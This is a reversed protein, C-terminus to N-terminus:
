GVGYLDTFPVYGCQHPSSVTAMFARPVVLADSSVEVNIARIRNVMESLRIESTAELRRQDDPTVGNVNQRLVMLNGEADAELYTHEDVPAIATTWATQFHRAVELLKDPLGAEGPVFKVISVSKMVDGIAITDGSISIDIPATSTRYAAIRRLTSSEFAYVVVTKVLGAVLRGDMLGLVRCAGKTAHETVVKLKREQTVEFVLIRGKVADLEKDDIYATGVIFREVMGRPGELVEGRLVCEVLEDENLEYTDLEKFVVEDALKFSSQVVEIGDVLSRKITGLGFAKLPQSYALRRVTEGIPLTQIHTTRESDVLSIKVDDPSAIVIAGPFAESSFPCICTAKEATVASYVLRGESGYILSPHECIAFINTLGDDRPIARLSAQQTGLITSKRNSLEFTDLDVDFTVINGDAMAVFLTPPRDQLVQSLILSRPVANSEESVTITQVPELDEVNLISIESTHWFGVICKGYSAQPLDICALQRQGGFNRRSKVTLSATLDLIVVELGSISLALHQSNATAAVVAGGNEPSWDSVVMGNETDILRVISSTCQVILNSAAEVNSAFLTGDTTILGQFDELEEVSGAADFKFMRTEDILSVLLTNSFQSYQTSGLSFMNTVSGLAGLSGLDELGVGSRVSRLSGDQFAGSGTVLRAQGSSYENLQEESARSGMDMVTFDLIPSINPLTQLVEIGSPQIRILQSDGQHSGVFVMGGSLYTLVSARSTSGLQDLRFGEVAGSQTLTIMLFYLKGYDDALLWRQGDVQEWAVFITSAELKHIIPDSFNADDVYTIATEALLLFGYLPAPVPIVHSASIDVEDVVDEEDKFEVTGPESSTGPSYDMTKVKLCAKDQNDQYLIALKPKDKEPANGRLHLFTSSRIFMEPVRVPIPQGLSKIDPQLKGRAKKKLPVLTMIGEFLEMALFREYPDVYCRDQTQSDRGTRESQDTFNHQTVLQKLSPDWSLTFYNHRDTGVFLHDTTADAPRLGKLMSIRGYIVRSHRLVLGDPTLDYFELRNAKRIAVTLRTSV